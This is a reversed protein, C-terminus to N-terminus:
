RRGGGGCRAGVAMSLSSSPSSNSKEKQKKTDVEKKIADRLAHTIKERRGVRNLERFIGQNDQKLFRGGKERVGAEIYDAINAKEARNRTARYRPLCHLVAGRFKLNGVLTISYLSVRDLSTVDTMQTKRVTISPPATEAVSSM